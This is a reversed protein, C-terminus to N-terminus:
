NIRVKGTCLRLVNCIMELVQERVAAQDTQKNILCRRFKLFSSTCTLSCRRFISYKRLRRHVTANHALIALKTRTMLADSKYRAQEPRYKLIYNQYLQIEGRHCFQSMRSLDKSLRRSLVFQRLEQFAPSDRKLITHPSSKNPNFPKHLCAQSCDGAVHPLLSRWRERLVHVNGQSTYSSWCLHNTVSPICRTLESCFSKRGASRLNSRLRKVYQWVDYEHRLHPFDEAMAKKISRHRDTAVAQINFNANLLRSLCMHFARREVAFPSTNPQLKEIQFDVIRKTATDLLVLTCHRASPVVGGHHSCASLTLPTEKLAEKLWLREQQWHLDVAPFLFRQQYTSYTSASIQQLGMLRSMEQVKGFSSGSFLVASACLLNGVAINKTFPQSNWLHFRHGKDCLGNVSLFTGDIYKQLEVIPARCGDGFQCPLKYFLDDLCSEFVLFKRELAMNKEPFVRTPKLTATRSKKNYGKKDTFAANLESDDSPQMVVFSKERDFNGEPYETNKKHKKAGKRGPQLISPYFHDHHVKWTEGEFNFEYEPWQTGMDVQFLHQDTSTSADVMKKPMTTFSSHLVSTDRTSAGRGEARTHPKKAKELFLMKTAPCLRWQTPPSSEEGDSSTETKVRKAPPLDGRNQLRGECKCEEFITPVADEGLVMKKGEWVYCQPSFHESCVRFITRERADLVQQAFADLDELDTAMEQLWMKIRAVNNPFSHLAVGTGHSNQPSSNPCGKVICRLM